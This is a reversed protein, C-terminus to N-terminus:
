VQFAELLTILIFVNGSILYKFQAKKGKNSVPDRQLSLLRLIKYLLSFEFECIDM